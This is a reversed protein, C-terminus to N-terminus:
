TAEGAAHGAPHTGTEMEIRSRIIYETAGRLRENMTLVGVALEHTTPLVVVVGLGSGLVVEIAVGTPEEWLTPGDEFKGEVDETWGEEPPEVGLTPGDESKGEVGEVGETTGEVEDARDVGLNALVVLMGDDTRGVVGLGSDDPLEETGSGVFGEVETEEECAGM